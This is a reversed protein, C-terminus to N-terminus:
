IFEDLQGARELAPDGLGLGVHDEVADPEATGGPGFLEVDVGHEGQALGDPRFHALSAADASIGLPSTESTTVIQPDHRARLTPFIICGRGSVGAARRLQPVERGFGDENRM